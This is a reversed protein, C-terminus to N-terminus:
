LSRDSKCRESVSLFVMNGNSHSTVILRWGLNNLNPLTSKCHIIPNLNKGPGIQFEILGLEPEGTRKDGQMYNDGSLLVWIGREGFLSICLYMLGINICLLIVFCLSITPAM